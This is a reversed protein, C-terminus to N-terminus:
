IFNSYFMAVKIEGNTTANLDERTCGNPCLQCLPCVMFHQMSQTRAGCNCQTLNAVRYTYRCMKDRCGSSSYTKMPLKVNTIEGYKNMSIYAVPRCANPILIKSCLVCFCVSVGCVSKICKM